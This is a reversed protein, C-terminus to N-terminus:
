RKDRSFEAENRMLTDQPKKQEELQQLWKPATKYAKTIELEKM